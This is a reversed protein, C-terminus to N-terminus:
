LAPVRRACLRNESVYEFRSFTIRERPMFPGEMMGVTMGVAIMGLVTM